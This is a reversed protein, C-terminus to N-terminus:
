SNSNWINALAGDTAELGQSRVQWLM